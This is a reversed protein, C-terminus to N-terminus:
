FYSNIRSDLNDSSMATVFCCPFIPFKCPPVYDDEGLHIGHALKLHYVAKLLTLRQGVSTIGLAKLGDSDLM